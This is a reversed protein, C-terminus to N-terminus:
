PGDQLEICKRASVLQQATFCARGIGTYVRLIGDVGFGLRDNRCNRGRSYIFL